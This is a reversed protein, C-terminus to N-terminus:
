EADQMSRTVLLRKWDRAYICLITSISDLAGQIDLQLSASGLLLSDNCVKMLLAVWSQFRYIQNDNALEIIRRQRQANIANINPIKSKQHEQPSDTISLFDGSIIVIILSQTVRRMSTLKLTACLLRNSVFARSCGFTCGLELLIRWFLRCQLLNQKVLLLEAALDETSAGIQQFWIAWMMVETTKCGM